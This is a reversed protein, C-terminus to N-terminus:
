VIVPMSSPSPLDLLQKILTRHLSSIKHFFVVVQSFFVFGNLAGSSFDIGFIIVITFFIVTPLIELLLYFIIGFRCLRNKHCIIDRSNFYASYSTKCSGCLVGERSGGCMFNSLEDHSNPLRQLGAENSNKFISPYFATYLNSTNQIHSAQPYHGIWYGRKIFATFNVYDCKVISPYSHSKNDASCWCRKMSDKYYFGPPCPILSVNISFEVSYLQQPTNLILTANQYAAGFIRTKNNATVHNSLEVLENKKVRVSFESDIVAKFEDYMKPPLLLLKGPVAKLPSKGMFKVVRASTALARFDKKQIDFHFVGIRDFLKTLNKVSKRTEEFYSFYCSYLSEAFISLGGLLAKNDIFNFHINRRTINNENGGYELFCTQGNFYERQDFSEYYIGGGVKAASNNVFSFQSNDHIELASFGHVSIAGGKIGWNRHFVVSSNRHFVARGSTLYLATYWNDEFVVSGEFHTTFRTIIFVGQTVHNNDNRLHNQHIYVDRFLPIPAYGKSSQQFRYPSIDVAPSLHGINGYWTCNIFQIIEGPQTIYNNLLAIISTGGGFGANNRKFMVTEFHILNKFDEGVEGLRIHIGGGGRSAMNKEFKSDSVFVTNNYTKDQVYICLGGGWKAANNVFVSNSIYIEIFFTNQLIAIGMGGGFSRGNWERKNKTNTLHPITYDDTPSRNDVFESEEVIIITKRLTQNYFQIHLGGAFSVEAVVRQHGNTMFECYSINVKDIPNILVMGGSHINNHVKVQNIIVRSCEKILVAASYVDESGCCLHVAFNHLELNNIHVFSLGPRNSSPEKKGCHCKLSNSQQRGKIAFYQQNKFTVATRLSIQSELIITINFSTSNRLQDAIFELSQCCDNVNANDRPAKLCRESDHGKKHLHFVKNSYLPHQTSLGSQIMLLAVLVVLSVM